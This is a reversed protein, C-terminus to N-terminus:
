KGQHEALVASGQRDRGPWAPCAAQEADAGGTATFYFNGTLSSSEWPVQANGTETMVQRRVLKFMQEVPVDPQRMAGALAASYPSNAGEGDHAVDGPATAYAVLTGQPADMRALGRTASRFSRAFPNNRCADIIVFNIQTRAYDLVGLVASANVAEIEVDRERQIAANVPILYNEGNVQIGHGAYYFLGTAEKGAEDLKAGFDQIARKMTKQDVDLHEMVLFDLERLTAAILRADNVPNVLPSEPYASNGIVLAIRKAAAHGVAPSCVSVFFLVVMAAVCRFLLAAKSNRKMSSPKMARERYYWVIIQKNNYGIKRKVGLIWGWYLSNGKKIQIQLM